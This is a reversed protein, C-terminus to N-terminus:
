FLRINARLYVLASGQVGQYQTDVDNAAAGEGSKFFYGWSIPIQVGADFVDSLHKGFGLRGEVLFGKDTVEDNSLPPEVQEGTGVGFGVNVNLEFFSGAKPEKQGPQKPPKAGMDASFGLGIDFQTWTSLDSEAEAGSGLRVFQHHQIQANVILFRGGLLIGYTPPAARKFFADDKRGGSLGTGLTGGGHVEAYLKFVDASASGCLAAALTASCLLTSRVAMPRNDRTKASRAM